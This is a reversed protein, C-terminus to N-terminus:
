GHIWYTIMYAFCFVVFFTRLCVCVCECLGCVCNMQEIEIHVNYAKGRSGSSDRKDGNNRESHRHTCSTIVVHTLTQTYIDKMVFSSICDCAHTWPSQIERCLITYIFASVYLSYCPIVCVRVCLVISQTHKERRPRERGQTNGNTIKKWKIQWIIKNHSTKKWDRKM